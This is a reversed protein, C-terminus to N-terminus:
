KSYEIIINKINNFTKPPRGEGVKHGEIDEIIFDIQYSVETKLAKPYDEHRDDWEFFGNNRIKKIMEDFLEESIIVKRELYIGYDKEQKEEEHSGDNKFVKINISEILKDDNEIEESYFSIFDLYDELEEEM